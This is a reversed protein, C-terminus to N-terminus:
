CYSVKGGRELAQVLTAEAIVHGDAAPGKSRETVVEGLIQGLYVFPSRERFFWVSKSM